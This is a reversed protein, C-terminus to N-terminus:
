EHLQRMYTSDIQHNLDGHREKIFNQSVYMKHVEALVRYREKPSRINLHGIECIRTFTQRTHIDLHSSQIVVDEREHDRVIELDRIYGAIFDKPIFKQIFEVDDTNRVKNLLVMIRSVQSNNESLMQFQRFVEVGKKTPEVVLVLLDFQAFLSSAFADTGAVMDAVLWHNQDNTHSLINEFIALHNHYCSASVDKRQYTGVSGFYLNNKIYTYQKLFPDKEGQEIFIEKSGSGPPTTKVFESLSRIHPNEGKLYSRIEDKKESFSSLGELVQSELGIMDSLHMNIDADVAFVRESQSLLYTIFLGCLTTKGSGGKGVFAIKM